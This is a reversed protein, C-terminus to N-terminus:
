VCCFLFRLFYMFNGPYLASISILGSFLLLQLPNPLLRLLLFRTNIGKLTSVVRGECVLFIWLGFSVWSIIAYDCISFGWFLICACIEFKFLLFAVFIASVWIGTQFILVFGCFSFSICLFLIISRPSFLFISGSTRVVKLNSFLDSDDLYYRSLPQQKTRLGSVPYEVLSNSGQLLTQIHPFPITNQPVPFSNFNLFIASQEFNQLLAKFKM